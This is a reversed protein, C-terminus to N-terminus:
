DIEVGKKGRDLLLVVGLQAALRHTHQRHHCFGGAANGGAVFGLCKAYFGARPHALCALQARANHKYFRPVRQIHLHMLLRYLNHVADCGHILHQANVFHGAFQCAAPARRLLGGLNGVADLGRQAGLQAINHAHGDANCGVGQQGFQGAIHLLGVTQHQQANLINGGLKQM